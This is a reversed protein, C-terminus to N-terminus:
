LHQLTELLVRGGEVLTKTAEKPPANILYFDENMSVQFDGLTYIKLNELM